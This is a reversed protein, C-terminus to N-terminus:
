IEQLIQEAQSKVVRRKKSNRKMDEKLLEGYNVEKGGLETDNTFFGLQDVKEIVVEHGGNEVVYREIDFRMFPEFGMNLLFNVPEGNETETVDRRVKGRFEFEHAVFNKEGVVFSYVSGDEDFSYIGNKGFLYHTEDQEEILDNESLMERALTDELEYM